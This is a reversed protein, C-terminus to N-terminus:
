PSWLRQRGEEHGAPLRYLLHYTKPIVPKPIAAKPVDFYMFCHDGEVMSTMLDEAKLLGPQEAQDPPDAGRLSLHMQGSHELLVYAALLYENKESDQLIFIGEVTGEDMRDGLLKEMQKLSLHIRLMDRNPRTWILDFQQSPELVHDPLSVFGEVLLTKPKLLMGTRGGGGTKDRTKGGTLGSVLHEKFRASAIPVPLQNSREIISRNSSTYVGPKAWTQFNAPKQIPLKEFVLPQGWISDSDEMGLSKAIEPEPLLMVSMDGNTVGLIDGLYIISNAQGKPMFFSTSLVIRKKRMLLLYGALNEPLPPSEFRLAPPHYGAAIVRASKLQSELKKAIADDDILKIPHIESGPWDFPAGIRIVQRDMEHSGIFGGLEVDAEIIYQGKPLTQIYRDQLGVLVHVSRLWGLTYLDDTKLDISKIRQYDAYKPDAKIYIKKIAIDSVGWEGGWKLFPSSTRVEVLMGPHDEQGTQASLTLQTIQDFLNQRQAASLQDSICALNLFVRYGSTNRIISSDPSSQILALDILGATTEADLTGDYYHDSLADWADLSRQAHSSQADAKLWWMPKNVADFLGQSAVYGAGAGGFFLVALCSWGWAILRPQRIRMGFVAARRRRLNAGCEPCRAVLAECGHLDYRCKRCRRHNDVKKGRWGLVLLVIGVLFLVAAAGLLFGPSLIFSILGM